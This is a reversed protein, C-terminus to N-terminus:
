QKFLVLEGREHSEIIDEAIVEPIHECLEYCTMEMVKKKNKSFELFLANCIATKLEDKNIKIDISLQTVM